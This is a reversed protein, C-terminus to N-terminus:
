ELLHDEKLRVGSLKLALSAKILHLIKKAAREYNLGEPRINSICNRSEDTLGPRPSYTLYAGMSDPSSLGPREGILILSLQSKLAAGIPDGLAVRAQQAIVLPALKYKANNLESILQQLLPIAHNNIATASLGDALIIVIDSENKNEDNLKRTSDEHLQRGHDPRQLYDARDKAKSHTEIIPLQFTKLSDILMKRNLESYVADRAHAHAMRLDLSEKLPVSVGTRGLAIRAATYSRLMSWPDTRNTLKKPIDSREM